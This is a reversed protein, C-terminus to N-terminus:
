AGVSNNEMVVEGFERQVYWLDSPMGLFVNNRIRALGKEVAPADQTASSGGDIAPTLEVYGATADYTLGTVPSNFDVEVGIQKVARNAVTVNQWMPGIMPFTPSWVKKFRFMDFVVNVSGTKFRLLFDGNSGNTMYYM